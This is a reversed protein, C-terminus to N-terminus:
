FKNKIISSHDHLITILGATSSCDMKRMINGKHANVTRISLDLKDAIQENTFDKLMLFIIEFERSTLTDVKGQLDNIKNSFLISLMEEDFYIEEESASELTQIFKDTDMELSLVGLVNLKSTYNLLFPKMKITFLLCPMTSDVESISVTNTDIIILNAEKQESVVVFEGEFRSGKILLELYNSLFENKTIIYAKM